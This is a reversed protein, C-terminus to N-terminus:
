KERLHEQIKQLHQFSQQVDPESDELQDADPIKWISRLDDVNPIIDLIDGTALYLLEHHLEHLLDNIQQHLLLRSTESFPRHQDETDLTSEIGQFAYLKSKISDSLHLLDEIAPTYLEDTHQRIYSNLFRTSAGLALLHSAGWFLRSLASNTNSHDGLEAMIRPKGEM